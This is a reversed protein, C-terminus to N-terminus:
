LPDTAHHQANEFEDPACLDYLSSNPIAKGFRVKSYTDDCVSCFDVTGYAYVYCMLCLNIEGNLNACLGNDVLGVMCQDATSAYANTTENELQVGSLLVEKVYLHGFVREALTGSVVFIATSSTMRFIDIAMQYHRVKLVTVTQRSFLFKNLDGIEKSILSTMGGSKNLYSREKSILSTMGGLKNLDNREKSILHTMGGSKNLDSREKSILPTMGGLKNLDSREKSILPTMGGSKNLDSREKSILSTMGGSKILDSREKSILPTMGGSKNLDSREKSILSTM